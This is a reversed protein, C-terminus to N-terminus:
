AIKAGNIGPKENPLQTHTNAGYRAIISKHHARATVLYDDYSKRPSPVYDDKNFFRPDLVELKPKRGRKEPTYSSIDPHNNVYREHAKRRFYVQHSRDRCDNAQWVM